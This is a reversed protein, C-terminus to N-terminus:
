VTVAEVPTEQPVEPGHAQGNGNRQLRYFEQSIEILEKLMQERLDTIQEGYFQLVKRRRINWEQETM